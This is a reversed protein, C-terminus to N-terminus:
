GYMLTDSEYAKEVTRGILFNSVLYEFAKFKSQTDDNSFFIQQCYVALDEVIRAYRYYAVANHNVDTKGYGCYFLESEKDINSQDPEIGAGIFMLDREKPAFILTDWDVIFVHGTESVLLNWKHLDAHCLVYPLEEKQLGDALQKTREIINQIQVSKEKLFAATKHLTVDEFINQEIYKLLSKLITSWKESFEENPIVAALDTPMNVSHLKKISAGFEIMQENSLTREIANKGNIFPYLVGTFGMFFSWLKQDITEVPSVVNKCGSDSLYKPITVSSEHFANDKRLKFFYDCTSNTKVQYVRTDLDAGLNLRSVSKVDVAYTAQLFQGIMENSIVDSTLIM